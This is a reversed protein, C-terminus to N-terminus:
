TPKLRLFLTYATRAWVAFVIMAPKIGHSWRSNRAGVLEQEGTNRNDIERAHEGARVARAHEGVEARAHDLDFPRTFAVFYAMRHELEIGLARILAAIKRSQVRALLANRDIEGM